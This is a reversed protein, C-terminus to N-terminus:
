DKKIDSVCRFGTGSYDREGSAGYFGRFIASATNQDSKWNGGRIVKLRLRSWPIEKGGPYSRADSSTWEWVNGAMDFVGFPSRGGVGVARVGQSGSGANALTPDWENGWPFTRADPGRAAFEWEAETPLRKGAWAAYEVADYWTVGTVPFEGKGDPYTDSNWTAPPSHGTAKVFKLYAENTVETLDIFFPEVRVRQAPRSFRDGSDSGMFFEGGPVYTMGAPALNPKPEDVVAPIVNSTQMQVSQSVLFWSGVLFGSGFMVAAFVFLSAARVIVRSNRGRSGLPTVDIVSNETHENALAPPFEPAIIPEASEQEPQDLEAPGLESIEIESRSGAEADLPEDSFRMGSLSQEFFDDAQDDEFELEVDRDSVAETDPANESSPVFITEDPWFVPASPESSLEIAPDALERDLLDEDALDSIWDVVGKRPEAGNRLEGFSTVATKLSSACNLCIQSEVANETGCNPCRM